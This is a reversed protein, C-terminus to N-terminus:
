GMAVPLIVTFATGQGPRSDVRIYGSHQRVIRHVLSLGLGTGQGTEKTTYFPEFIRALREPPIGVGTDAVTVHIESTMWRTTVRIEGPAGALADRANLLLNLWVSQLHDHSALVLPLAPALDCALSISHTLLQHEVLAIAGQVSANLDTAVFEYRDQRAFDLLGRVVKMARDGALAILDVSEQREDDPPLERRLLQANAIIAALPNNIEHAVGAALQGVAAMKESQALSAELRRKETVDQGLVIAQVSQGNEDFIPYTSIEWETPQGDTEWRRETRQTGQGNFLTEAVRCGACPEAQRYLTQYCRQGPLGKPERGALRAAALNVAVLHYDRNVIYIPATIGDFLARLTNRSRIVEQNLAALEQSHDYATAYLRHLSLSRGVLRVLYRLWAVDDPSCAPGNVLLAGLGNPLPIAAALNLAPDSIVEDSKETFLKQATRRLAS